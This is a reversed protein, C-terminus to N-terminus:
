GCKIQDPQRFKVWKCYIKQKFSQCFVIITKFYRFNKNKKILLFTKVAKKKAWM